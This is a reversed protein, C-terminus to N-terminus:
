TLKNKAMMKKLERKSVTIVDVDMNIKQLPEDAKNRPANSIADIVNFGIIVQGFLSYKDDLRYEGKKNTIIYIQCKASYMAKNDDRGFGVAGYSHRLSSHFEPPILITSDKFGEPTDPCGAQAVFNPIVRNFSSSDWYGLQAYEIFCKKHNPANDSLTFIIDGYITKIKGLKIKQANINKM